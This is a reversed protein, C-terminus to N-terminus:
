DKIHTKRRRRCVAWALARAAIGPLVIASQALRVKSVHQLGDCIDVWAAKKTALVGVVGTVLCRASVLMLIHRAFARKQQFISATLLFNYVIKRQTSHNDQLRLLISARLRQEIAGDV